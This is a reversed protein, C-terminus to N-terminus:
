KPGLESFMTFTNNKQGLSRFCLLRLTKKTGLESFVTFTDNNKGRAWFFVTFTDNQKDRAGLVCYVYRKNQGLSRFSLLRLTNKDWAGFVCYVYRKKDWAGFVSFTVTNQGLSLFCLLRFATKDWARLVCYVYRQKTGPESFRAFRYRRIRNRGM